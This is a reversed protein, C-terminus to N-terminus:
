ETLVRLEVITWVRTPENAVQRFRLFRASRQIRLPIPIARPHAIAADYTMLATQGSWVTAWSRGDLSAEAVLSRPYQSAYTGLCLEVWAVNQPAGLDVTVIETGAQHPAHWRTNLDGDFMANVDAINVSADAHTVTLPRGSVVGQPDRPHTPLEYRNWGPGSDLLRAGAQEVYRRWGDDPDLAREVVIQIPGGGALRPLISPDRRELLDRLPAHQPADYGSYGNFVPLGDGITQYMSETENRALPLGLRAVAPTGTPSRLAPAEALAFTRPWGDLLFGAIAVFAVVRRLAPSRVSAVILAAAASLSLISLMWLRAPVRMEDFGPLHMLAGYPGYIGLPRGM